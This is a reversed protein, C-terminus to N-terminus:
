DDEPLIGMTVSSQFLEETLESPGIFALPAVDAHGNLTTSNLPRYLRVRAGDRTEKLPNQAWGLRRLIAGVRMAHGLDQRSTDVGLAALIDSTSVGISEKSGIDSPKSLYTEVKQEWPDVRFRADQEVRESDRLAPDTIHWEEGQEFRTRAEAWFNNRTSKMLAVDGRTCRVPWMRRGTGGTEDSLWESKNCTGAFVTQRPFDRSGKGYSPRYTDVQRSFYSKVAAWEHKSLGDIEPFEAIWKRKLIQMADKSAVDTISMELFWEDGVLARLVSSKFIGPPGELVLVTDVKDGPRYARACASVAWAQGVARVYPTDECGMVDVLWTPVRKRGDWRLGDLWDRVPHVVVRDAVLRVASLTADIGLDLAYADALWCQTRITDEDTWDGLSPKAGADQKRWPPAARKIIGEAFEDYALVGKWREDHTLVTVANATVSRLKHPSDKPLPELLKSRWSDPKRPGSV